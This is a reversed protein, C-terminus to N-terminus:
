VPLFEHVSAKFHLYPINLQPKRWQAVFLGLRCKNETGQVSAAQTIVAFIHSRQHPTINVARYIPPVGFYHFFCNECFYSLHITRASRDNQNRFGFSCHAGCKENGHFQVSCTYGSQHLEIESVSTLCTGVSNRRTEREHKWIQVVGSVERAVPLDLILFRLILKDQPKRDKTMNENETDSISLIRGNLATSYGHLNQRVAHAPVAAPRCHWHNIFTIREFLPRHNASRKM